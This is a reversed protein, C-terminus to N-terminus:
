PSGKRVRLFLGKIKPYQDWDIDEEKVHMYFKGSKHTVVATDDREEKELFIWERSRVHKLVNDKLKLEDGPTLSAFIHSSM